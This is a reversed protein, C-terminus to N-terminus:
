SVYFPLEPCISLVFARHGSVKETIKGPVAFFGRTLTKEKMVDGSHRMKKGHAGNEKWTCSYDAPCVLRRTLSRVTYKQRVSISKHRIRYNKQRM